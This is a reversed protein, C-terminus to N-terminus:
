VRKKLNKNEPAGGCPKLFNSKSELIKEQLAGLRIECKEFDCLFGDVHSCGIKKYVECNYVPDKM